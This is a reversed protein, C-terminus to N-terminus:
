KIHFKLRRVDFTKEDETGFGYGDFIISNVPVLPTLAIRWNNDELVLVVLFYNVGNIHYENEHYVKYDVAVYFAKKNSYQELKRSPIYNEAYNYPLEKWKLLRAKRSNLLGVKKEENEKDDMFSKMENAVEKIYWEDVNTWRSENLDNFYGRIVEIESMRETQSTIISLSLLLIVNFRLYNLM